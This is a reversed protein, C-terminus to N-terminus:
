RAKAISDMNSSSPDHSLHSSIKSNKYDDSHKSVEVM